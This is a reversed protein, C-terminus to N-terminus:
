RTHAPDTYGPLDVLIVDQGIKRIREWPIVYETERGLFGLFRAPGPVIVALIKGNELDLDFDTILGLRTGDPVNVVDRLRLDSARVM